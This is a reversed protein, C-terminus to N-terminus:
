KEWVMVYEKEQTNEDMSEDVIQFGHALYFNVSALNKQYVQLILKHRIGQAHEILRHGIGRGQFAPHVFIAALAEDLLSVFGCPQIEIEAVYNEALPLYQYQMAARHAAWYHSDIFNHAKLSTEYWIHTLREFDEPGALRIHHQYNPM